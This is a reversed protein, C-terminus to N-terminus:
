DIGAVKSRREMLITNRWKGHLKGVKERYGIERFGMKKHLVLSGTNEPFIGSQLTWYGEKESEEILKIFLVKGVGKGQFDKGIYVSVEAVGSYVQRQSVKSIAIWGLVTENEIAVFRCESAHNANWVEWAPAETQFTANGTAIGELYIRQVDPWHIETLPIIQM